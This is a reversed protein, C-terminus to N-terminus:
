RGATSRAIGRRRRPSRAGGLGPARSAHLLQQARRTGLPRWSSLPCGFFSNPPLLRPNQDFARFLATLTHKAKDSMRAVQYHQYLHDRLFKKLYQQEQRIKKSFGILPPAAQVERLSAPHTATINAASQVTLDTALTNIMRRVTEHIM